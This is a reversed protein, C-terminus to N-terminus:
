KASATQEAPPTRAYVHQSIEYAHKELELAQARV